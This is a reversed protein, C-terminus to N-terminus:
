IFLIVVNLCQLLIYHLAVFRCHKVLQGLQLVVNLQLERSLPFGDPLCEKVHVSVVIAEDSDLVEHAGEASFAILDVQHVEFLQDVLFVALVFAFQAVLVERLPKPRRNVPRFTEVEAVVRDLVGEVLLLHHLV